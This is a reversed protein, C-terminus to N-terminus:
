FQNMGSEPTRRVQVQRKLRAPKNNIVSVPEAVVTLHDSESKGSDAGLPPLCVPKQYYKSLTMIIPDLIAPPNLRTPDQVIQTFRPDLSLITNLSMRNLDGALIWHLGKPYKYSLINFVDTIHDNLLTHSQSPRGPKLYIAGCVIKQITSDTQTHLPTLLAWVVEVGWPISIVSQTINQVQYKKKNIVLAPRGGKGQRQHVNSIVVHDELQLMIQDLMLGPREHSESIFVIDTETEAVFTVFEERKNYVSQPNINCLKPLHLTQLLKNSRKITQNNQPGHFITQPKKTRNHSIHVPIKSVSSNSSESDFSDNGDLQPMVSYEDGIQEDDTAHDVDTAADTADNDEVPSTRAAPSTSEETTNGM